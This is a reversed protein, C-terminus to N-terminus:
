PTEPVPRTEPVPKKPPNPSPSSLEESRNQLESPYASKKSSSVPSSGAVDLKPLQCEVM